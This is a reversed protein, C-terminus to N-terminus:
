EGQRALSLRKDELSLLKGSKKTPGSNSKPGSPTLYNDPLSTGTCTM